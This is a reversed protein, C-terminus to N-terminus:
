ARVAKPKPSEAIRSFLALVQDPSLKVLFVRYGVIKLKVLAQSLIEPDM